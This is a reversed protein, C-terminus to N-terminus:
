KGPELSSHSAWPRLLKTCLRFLVRPLSADSYQKNSLTRSERKKQNVSKCESIAHVHMLWVRVSSGRAAAIVQQGVPM